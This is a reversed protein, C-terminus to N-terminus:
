VRHSEAIQALREALIGREYQLGKLYPSYFGDLRAAFGSELEWAKLDPPLAIMAERLTLKYTQRINPGFPLEKIQEDLTKGSAAAAALHAKIRRSDEQRRIINAISQDYLEIQNQLILGPAALQALTQQAAPDLEPLLALLQPRYSDLIHAVYLVDELPLRRPHHILEHMLFLFGKPKMTYYTHTERKEVAVLAEAAMGDLVRMVQVPQFELPEKGSGLLMQDAFLDIYFCFVNMKARRRALSACILGCYIISQYINTITGRHTKSPSRKRHSMNQFWRKPAPIGFDIVQGLHCSQKTGSWSRRGM